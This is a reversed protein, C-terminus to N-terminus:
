KRGEALSYVRRSLGYEDPEGKKSTILGEDEMQDLVVYIVGRKLVGPSAVVMDLGFMPGGALLELIRASAKTFLTM